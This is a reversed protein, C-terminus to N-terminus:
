LLELQLRIPRLERRKLFEEDRFALKYAPARTQPTDPVQDAKRADEVSSALPTWGEPAKFNM